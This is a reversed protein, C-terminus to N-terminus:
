RYHSARCRPMNSILQLLRIGKFPISQIPPWPNGISVSVARRGDGLNKDCAVRLTDGFGIVSIVRRLFRLRHQFISIAKEILLDQIQRRRDNVDLVVLPPIGEDVPMKFQKRPQGGILYQTL